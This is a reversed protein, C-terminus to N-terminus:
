RAAVVVARLLGVVVRAPRGLDPDLTQKRLIPDTLIEDAFTFDFLEVTRGASVRLTGLRKPADGLEFYVDILGDM